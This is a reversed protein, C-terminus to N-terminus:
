REAVVRPQRGKQGGPGRVDQEPRRREVEQERQIRLNTRAGRAPWRLAGQLEVGPGSTSAPPWMVRRNSTRETMGQSRAPAIAELGSGGAGPGAGFESSAAM